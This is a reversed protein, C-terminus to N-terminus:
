KGGQDPPSCHTKGTASHQPAHRLDHDDDERIRGGMGPARGQGTVGTLPTTIATSTRLVGRQILHPTSPASSEPREGTLPQVTDSPRQGRGGLTRYLPFTYLTPPVTASPSLCTRVTRRLGARRRSYRCLPSHLNLLRRDHESHPMTASVLQHREVGDSV